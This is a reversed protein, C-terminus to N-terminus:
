MYSLYLHYNRTALVMMFSIDTVRNQKNGGTVQSLVEPYPFSPGSLALAHPQQYSLDITCKGM